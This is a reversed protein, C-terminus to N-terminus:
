EDKSVGGGALAAAQSRLLGALRYCANAIGYEGIGSAVAALGDADRAQGRKIKAWGAGEAGEPVGAPHARIAADRQALVEGFVAQAQEYGDSFLGDEGSAGQTGATEEFRRRLTRFGARMLRMAEGFRRQEGPEIEAKWRGGPCPQWAGTRRFGLEEVVDDCAGTHLNMSPLRFPMAGAVGRTVELVGDELICITRDGTIHATYAPM